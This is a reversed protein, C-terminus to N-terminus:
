KSNEYLADAYGQWWQGAAPAGNGCSGDSEGPTKVWLYADVLSEGTSLTPRPGLARDPPNCWEGDPSAGNGNRSTDIVFHKNHIKAAVAKGYATSEKTTQFNSINLSFGDAEAVGASRLRSAVEDSSHWSAHGADIYVNAAANKLIGVVQSIADFRSAKETASLCDMSAIADPEVVILATRNKLGDAVQRVWSLYQTYDQAGGASYSGCDRKPISYLVITPIAGTNAARSVYSDIDSSVSTNWDGFWKALPQSAIYQLTPNTPQSALKQAPVSQSDVFLPTVPATPTSLLPISSQVSTTPARGKDITISQEVPYWGDKILAIFRIIYRQDSRWNWESVDITASSINTSANTSMRNWSGDSVAWFMEYQSAELDNVKSSLTVTNSVYANDSPTLPVVTPSTAHVRSQLVTLIAVIGCIILLALISFIM